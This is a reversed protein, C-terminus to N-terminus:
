KDPSSKKTKDAKDLSKYVKLQGELNSVLKGAETAANNATKLEDKLTKLESQVAQYHVALKELEIIRDSLNTSKTKIDIKLQDNSKVASDLSTQLRHVEMDLSRNESEKQKLVSAHEKELATKEHTASKNLEELTFIQNKFETIEHRLQENDKSIGVNIKDSHNLKDRAEVYDKNVRNVDEKMDVLADTMQEIKVSQAESFM